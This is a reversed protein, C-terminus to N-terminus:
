QKALEVRRNQARGQETDNKAIPRTDGFGETTLRAADVKFNQVLYVKVSEARKKSLDLNYAPKGVNDTHGQILLKLDPQQQLLLGVEKLVPESEPKITAQNFDFKIGYLTVKGTEAISKAMAESNLSGSVRFTVSTIEVGDSDSSNMRFDYSGAEPPAIFHLTGASKKELYSWGIDHQDNVSEKGHPVNSPILGVWASKPLAEPATFDVDIQEGPAFTEKKLKLTGELKVTGVHFTVSAIETGNGDSDNLRFDYSGPKDPAQFKFTNPNKDGVYQYAVDHQDNVNEDGHPVDSPIVGIWAGKPLPVATSFELEIDDGPNFTNKKLRLVTKYDVATVEFTVSAFEAGDGSWRLDYSGPKTPAPVTMTGNPQPTYQYWIDHVDNTNEKGHPISSPIIGIWANPKIPGGFSYQVEFSEGPILKTKSASIKAQSLAISPVLVLMLFLVRRM